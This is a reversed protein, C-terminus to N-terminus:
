DEEFIDLVSTEIEKYIYNLIEDDSSGVIMDHPAYYAIEEDIHMADDDSPKIKKWDFNFATSMLESGILRSRTVGHRTWTCKRIPFVTKKYERYVFEM